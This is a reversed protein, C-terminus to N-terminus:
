LQIVLNDSKLIVEYSLNDMGDIVIEEITFFNTNPNLGLGKVQVYVSVNTNSGIAPQFLNPDIGSSLGNLTYPFVLPGLKLKNATLKGNSIILQEGMEQQIMPNLYGDGAAYSRYGDSILLRTSTVLRNSDVDNIDVQDNTVTTIYVSYQSVGLMSPIALGKDMAYRFAQSADFTAM